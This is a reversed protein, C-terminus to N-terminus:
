RKLKMGIHVWYGQAEPVPLSGGKLEDRLCLALNTEPRVLVEEVRGNLSLRVLVRVDRLDPKNIRKACASVRPGYAVGFQKGVAAEFAHGGPRESNRQAEVLALDFATREEAFAPLLLSLAAVVVGAVRGWSRKWRVETSWQISRRPGTVFHTSRTRELEKNEPRVIIETGAFGRSERGRVNVLHFKLGRRAAESLVFQILQIENRAAPGLLARAKSRPRAAQLLLWNMTALGASPPFWEQELDEPDPDFDGLECLELFDRRAQEPTDCFLDVLAPIEDEPM